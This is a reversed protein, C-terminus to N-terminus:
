APQIDKSSFPAAGTAIGVLTNSRYLGVTQGDPYSELAASMGLVGGGGDTNTVVVASGIQDSMKSAIIRVMNDTTGGPCYPVVITVPGAPWSREALSPTATFFAAALTATLARARHKWVRNM